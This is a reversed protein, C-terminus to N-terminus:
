QEEETVQQQMSRRYQQMYRPFKGGYPKAEVKGKRRASEIVDRMSVPTGEAGKPREKENYAKLRDVIKGMIKPDRKNEYELYNDALDQVLNQRQTYKEQTIQQVAYTESERTPTLSLAKMVKEGATPQIPMAGLTGTGARPDFIAKYPNRLFDPAAIFLARELNGQAAEEAGTKVRRLLNQAM